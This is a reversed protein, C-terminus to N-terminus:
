KSCLCDYLDIVPTQLVAVVPLIVMISVGPKLSVLVSRLSLFIRLSSVLIKRGLSYSLFCPIEAKICHIMGSLEFRIRFEEIPAIFLTM